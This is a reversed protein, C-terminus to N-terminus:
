ATGRPYLDNDRMNRAHQEIAQEVDDFVM